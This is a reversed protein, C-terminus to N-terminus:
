TAPAEDARLRTSIRRAIEERDAMAIWPLAIRVRDDGRRDVFRLWDGGVIVEFRDKLHARRRRGGRGYTVITGGRWAELCLRPHERFLPRSFLQLGGGEDLLLVRHQGRGLETGDGTDPAHARVAQRLRVGLRELAREGELGGRDLIPVPRIGVVRRVRRPRDEHWLAAGGAPFSRAVVLRRGALDLSHRRRRGDRELVLRSGGVTVRWRGGLVLRLADPGLELRLEGDKTPASLVEREAIGRYPGNVM